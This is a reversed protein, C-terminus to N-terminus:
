RCPSPPDRPQSLSLWRFRLVCGGRKAADNSPVSLGLESGVQEERTDRPLALTWPGKLESGGQGAVAVPSVPRQEGPIGLM